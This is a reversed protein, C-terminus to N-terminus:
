GIIPFLIFSLLKLKKIDNTVNQLLNFEKRTIIKNEKLLNKIIKVQLYKVRFNLIVSM